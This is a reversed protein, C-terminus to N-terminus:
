LYNFRFSLSFRFIESWINKSEMNNLRQATSFKKRSQTTSVFKLM